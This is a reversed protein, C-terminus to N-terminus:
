AGGGRKRSTRAKPKGLAEAATSTAIDATVAEVLRQLVKEIRALQTEVGTLREEVTQVAKATRIAARSAKM